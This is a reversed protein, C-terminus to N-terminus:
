RVRSEFQRGRLHSDVSSVLESSPQTKTQSMDDVEWVEEMWCNKTHSFRMGAKMWGVLGEYDAVSVFVDIIWKQQGNFSRKQPLCFFDEYQGHTGDGM